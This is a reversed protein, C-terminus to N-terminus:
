FIHIPTIANRRFEATTVFREHKGVGLCFSALFTENNATWCNWGTRGLNVHKLCTIHGDQKGERLHFVQTRSKPQIRFSVFIVHGAKPRFEEGASYEVNLCM